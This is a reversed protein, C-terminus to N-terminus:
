ICTETALGWTASATPLLTTELIIGNISHRERRSCLEKCISNVDTAIYPESMVTWLGCRSSSPRCCCYPVVSCAATNMYIVVPRYTVGRRSAQVGSLSLARCCRSSALLDVDRTCYLGLALAVSPVFLVQLETLPM